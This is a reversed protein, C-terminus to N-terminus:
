KSIMTKIIVIASILMLLYGVCTMNSPAVFLVKQKNCTAVHCANFSQGAAFCFWSLHGEPLAQRHKLIQCAAILTLSKETYTLGSRQRPQNGSKSRDHLYFQRMAAADKVALDFHM